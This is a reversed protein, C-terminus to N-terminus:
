PTTCRGLYYGFLLAGVILDDPANKTRKPASKNSTVRPTHPLSEYSLRNPAGHLM